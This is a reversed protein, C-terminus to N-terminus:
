ESAILASINELLEKLILQMKHFDMSKKCSLEDLYLHQCMELQLSYVRPHWSGFYRTINGGKFPKNCVVTFNNNMLFSEILDMFSKPCTQGDRNGPMFDPFPVESYGKVNSRISHADFLLVKPFKELLRTLLNKVAAYYPEYYLDVRRLIENKHIKVGEQYIFKNGFTKDPCLGTDCRQGPYLPEGDPTPRNLDIVYRSYNASILSAGISPGLEYLENIFSDTDPTALGDETMLRAINEPIERGSHPSSILVPLKPDWVVDFINNSSPLM